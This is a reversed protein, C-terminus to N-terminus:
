LFVDYRDLFLEFVEAGGIVGLSAGPMKFAALAQDISAGAPNWSMANPNSPDPEVSRIKRTVILRRRAASRSQHEGSHRGHILVNSATWAASM